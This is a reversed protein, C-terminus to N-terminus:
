SLNIGLQMLLKRIEPVKYAIVIDLVAPKKSENARKIAPGIENPDTIREGYCGFGKAIEAYNTSSDLDTDIFRKGFNFKQNSKIMGWASNNAICCIFPTNLRVATELEQVNFLFSGDGCITAVQRDPHALKAGIAYPICTGLHGMGISIVLSKPPRPKYFDLQLTAFLAIDGGDIIIISNADLNELVNKLYTEPLMPTKPKMARKNIMEINNKRVKQLMKLWETPEKKSTRKKVEELIQRLVLKCDGLIPIDVRRARGLIAPDIDVQITKITDNWLPAAGYGVTYSFKCGLALVVDSGRVANQAAPANLTVGIFTEKDSSITGTGMITTMAPIKLYDSLEQVEDWAEANAVGGGSILLPKEAKILLDVAKNILEPDAGSRGTCRYNEPQLFDFKTDTKGYLAEKSIEIFVPGPRGGMAQRYAKRIAEPIDDTHRVKKQFKTIPKFLAIQDVGSQMSFKDDLVEMKAPAIIIMPINDAWAAMAGPVLHAAGPGVTGICIGPTKMVRSWADAAHAAGQEHRFMITDINEERGWRYIADYIPLLEGGVIGFIYRAGEAQLCKIVLDGGTLLDKKEENNKSM